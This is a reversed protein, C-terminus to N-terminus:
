MYMHAFHRSIKHMIETIKNDVINSVVLISVELDLMFFTIKLVSASGDMTQSSYKAKSLKM